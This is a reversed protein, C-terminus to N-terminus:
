RRYPDPFPSGAQGPQQQAPPSQEAAPQIPQRRATKKGRQSPPQAAPATEQIPEGDAATDPAAEDVSPRLATKRGAKGKSRAPPPPAPQEAAPPPANEVAGIAVNGSRAAEFEPTGRIMERPVGQSAGPVGEPFVPKREGPVPKKTDLFNLMDSPDWASMGGCGGLAGTLALLAATAVFRPVRRM